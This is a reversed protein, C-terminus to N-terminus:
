LQILLIYINHVSYKSYNNKDFNINSKKKKMLILRSTTNKIKNKKM